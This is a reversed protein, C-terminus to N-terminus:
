QGPQTHKKNIGSQRWLISLLTTSVDDSSTRQIAARREREVLDTFYKGEGDNKFGDSFSYSITM